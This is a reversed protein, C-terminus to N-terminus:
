GQAPRVMRIEPLDEWEPLVDAAGDPAFGFRRYFGIARSNAAAVWLSAARSGIAADLLLAGLGLGRYTEQWCRVHVRVLREIDGASARRVALGPAM